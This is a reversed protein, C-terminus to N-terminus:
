GCNEPGPAWIWSVALRAAQSTNVAWRISPRVAFAQPITLRETGSVPSMSSASRRALITLAKSATASESLLRAKSAIGADIEAQRWDKSYPRDALARIGANLAAGSWPNKRNEAPSLFRPWTRNLYSM